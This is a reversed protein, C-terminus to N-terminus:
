LCEPHLIICHGRVGGKSSTRGRPWFWSLGHTVTNGRADVDPILFCAANVLRSGSGRTPVGVGVLIPRCCSSGDGLFDPRVCSRWARGTAYSKGVSWSWPGGAQGLSHSVFIYFSGGGQSIFPPGVKSLSGINECEFAQLSRYFFTGKSVRSGLDLTDSM